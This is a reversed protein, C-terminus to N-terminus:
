ELGVAQCTAAPRLVRCRDAQGLMIRDRQEVLDRRDAGGRQEDVAEVADVPRLAADDDVEDLRQLGVGLERAPAHQGREPIRADFRDTGPKRSQEVAAPHRRHFDAREVVVLGLRESHCPRRQPREQEAWFGDACEDAPREERLHQVIRIERGPRRGPRLDLQHRPPPGAAPEVRLADLRPKSLARQEPQDPETRQLWVSGDGQLRELRGKQAGNLLERGVPHEFGGRVSVEHPERVVDEEFPGEGLRQDTRPRPPEVLQARRALRGHDSTRYLQPRLGHEHRVGIGPACGESRQRVRGEAALPAAGPEECRQVERVEDGARRVELGHHVAVVVDQEPGGQDPELRLMGDRVRAHQVSRHSVYGVTVHPHAGGVHDAPRVVEPEPHAEESVEIDPHSRDRM